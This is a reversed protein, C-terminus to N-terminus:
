DASNSPLHPLNSRPIDAVKVDYLKEITEILEPAQDTENTYYSVSILVQSSKTIDVFFEVCHKMAFARKCEVDNVYVRPLMWTDYVANKVVIFLSTGPVLPKSFDVLDCSDTNLVDESDIEGTNLNRITIDPTITTM